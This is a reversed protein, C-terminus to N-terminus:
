FKHIFVTIYSANFVYEVIAEMPKEIGKAEEFLKTASFGADSFYTVNRTHKEIHKEDTAFVGIKKQKAEVQAAMLEDYHVSAPMNGKKEVVKALGSKVLLLNM